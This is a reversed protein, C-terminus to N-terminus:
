RETEEFEYGCNECRFLSKADDFVILGAEADIRKTHFVTDIWEAKGGCKPCKM